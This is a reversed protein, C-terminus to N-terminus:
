FKDAKYLRSLLFFNLSSSSPLLNAFSSTLMTLSTSSTSPNHNATRFLPPSASSSQAGKLASIIYMCEAEGADGPFNPSTIQDWDDGATVTKTCSPRKSINAGYAVCSLTALSLKMQNRQNKHKKPRGSTTRLKEKERFKVRSLRTQVGM